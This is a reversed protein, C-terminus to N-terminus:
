APPRDGGASGPPVLQTPRLLLEHVKALLDGPKFPKRLFAGAFEEPRFGPRDQGPSALGSVVLVRVDASIRKLVRALMAGDLNPMNLDSVVLRIETARKAFFGTAEAGDCALLVRYGHRTLLKGILDRVPAEDDVVLILESNGRPASDTEPPSHGEANVAAPLYVRFSAGLGPATDLHIFGGHNIVISRTTSLGLGTGKDASKTTVFPEWLRALVDPAIGTGTDAVELLLFDGTRGGEISGAATETLTCNEARLTLEGGHPMADRANVCLNLLVQHIQSPNAKVPWLDRALLEDVKINKPFTEAMLMGIDHLLHRVNVLQHEGATGQSFVLIQRVLATGREASKEVIDLLRLAAPDTVAERLVPAAMLMPALMNTLDHAIGAALLGINELRQAKHLQEELRKQETVDSTISLHAKPKGNDDLILTRRMEVDLAQGRRDHLHLVGHWEGRARTVERAAKIQSAGDDHAFIQEATKGMVEPGLWGYIREAGKSWYLIHNELDTIIIAERAQNLMEAQERIRREAQMQGTLDTCIALRAQPKGQDDCILSLRFDVLRSQGGQTCIEIEGTWEGHEATVALAERIPGAATAGFLEAISRSAAAAATWDTLREAGQNWFTVRGELNIVLIAERAKNLFGALDRSHREAQQRREREETEKLSRHIATTLRRIQDKLVYDRAGSRIAEIAREEGMTGSLLIFPTDPVRQQAIALAELGNFGDLSFDSLIVDFKRLQLEGTYAFRSLVRTIQCEPWEARILKEVLAADLDNDELHLIRIGLAVRATEVVPPWPQPSSSVALMEPAPPEM